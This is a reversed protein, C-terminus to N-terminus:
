SKRLVKNTFLAMRIQTIKVVKLKLHITNLSCFIKVIEELYKMLHGEEAITLVGKPGLKRSKKKKFYHKRLISKLIEYKNGVDMMKYGNDLAEFALRLAENSWQGRRKSPM